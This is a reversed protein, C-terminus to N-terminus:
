RSNSGRLVARSVERGGRLFTLDIPRGDAVFGPLAISTTGAAQTGQLALDHIRVTHGETAVLLDVPADATLRLELNWKGEDVVLSVQGSVPGEGLQVVDVTTAARPAALTGAMETTATEQGYDMLRFVITGTLIVGALVAAYRWRTASWSASARAPQSQPLAAIVDARLRAPAEAQPLADLAGCLRHMEDRLARVAPDSLLLRSLEARRHEDLEGDIEAHILALHVPEVM